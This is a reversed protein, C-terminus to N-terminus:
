RPGTRDLRIAQGARTARVPLLAELRHLVKPRSDMALVGSFRVSRADPAVTVPRGWYRDLDSAVETLPADRYVLRGTRWALADSPDVSRIVARGDTSQSFQQGARLTALPAQASADALIQVVGREVTVRTAGAHTVVDFRTGVVRVERGGADILFPRSSDHAVDVGMEGEALAVHRAHADVSVKVTTASNLALVSGDALTLTRAGGLPTQFTTWHPAVPRFLFAAVVVAAATASAGAALAIGARRPHMVPQHPRRRASPPWAPKRTRLDHAFTEIEAVTLAVDDFADRAGPLALWAEFRSWDAETCADAELRVHWAAAEERRDARPEPGNRHTDHGRM